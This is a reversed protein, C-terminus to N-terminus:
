IHILSLHSVGGNKEQFIPRISAYKQALELIIERSNDTSCDDVIIIEIQKYSQRIVSEICEQLYKQKNYNPIIVSLLSNENMM